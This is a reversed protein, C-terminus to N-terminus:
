RGGSGSPPPPPNNDVVASEYTVSSAIGPKSPGQEWQGPVWESQGNHNTGLHGNGMHGPDNEYPCSAVIAASGHAPVWTAVPVTAYPLYTFVSTCTVTSQVRYMDDTSNNCNFNECSVGPALEHAYAPAAWGVALAVAAAPVVGYSWRLSM